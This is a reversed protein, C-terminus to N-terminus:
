TEFGTREEQGFGGGDMMEDLNFHEGLCEQMSVLEGTYGKFEGNLLKVHSRVIQKKPFQAVVAGQPTPRWMGAVKVGSEEHVEQEVLNWYALTGMQFSQVFERPAEKPVNIWRIKQVHHGDWEVAQYVLWMLGRAMSSNLKRIYLKVKRGCLACNPGKGEDVLNFLEKRGQDITIQSLFIDPVDAGALENGTLGAIAQVFLIRAMKLSTAPFVDAMLKGDELYRSVVFLEDGQKLIVLDKDAVRMRALEVMKKLVGSDIRRITLNKM